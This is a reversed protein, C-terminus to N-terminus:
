STHEELRLITRSIIENKSGARGSMVAVVDVKSGPKVWGAVGVSEDVKVAVARFGDKIRAALGPLTGKPALLSQVVPCGQPISNATVRGIVEKKDRIALKPCLTEPVSAMEVMQETIEITPAMDVRARVVEVTEGTSGKAKKLVNVFMKIAFIGIGLGLVLPIIAKAKM